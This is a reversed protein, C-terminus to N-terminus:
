RHSPTVQAVLVGFSYHPCESLTAIRALRFSSDWSGGAVMWWGRNGGV